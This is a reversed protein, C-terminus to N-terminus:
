APIGDVVCHHLDGVAVLHTPNADAQVPLDLAGVRKGGAWSLYAVIAEIAQYEPVAGGVVCQLGQASHQQVVLSPLVRLPHIRFFSLCRRLPHEPFEQIFLGLSCGFQVIHLAVPWAASVHLLFVDKVLGDHVQGPEHAGTAATPRNSNM